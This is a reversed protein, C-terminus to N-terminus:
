KMLWQMCMHGVILQLDEALQMDVGPFHISIDAMTQVQGGSLGTIACTVMGINRGTELAKIINPSNGSGTLVILLDGSQAKAELQLGFIDSYGVDNALCTIVASNAPLAEVKIGPRVGGGIGYLFDNALHIANGASGGNGCLFCQRGDTWVIKLADALRGVDSWDRGHLVEGLREAYSGFEVEPDQAARNKIDM